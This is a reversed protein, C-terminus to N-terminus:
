GRSSRGRRLLMTGGILAALGVGTVVTLQPDPVPPPVFLVGSEDAVAPQHVYRGQPPLAVRDWNRVLDDLGQRLREGYMPVGHGTAGVDPRLNALMEVSRRATEWDPTYYAPPRRVQRPRTLAALASEQKTTVFADGVILARDAERWLSVHGPSHGPTPLWQWGPMGPVSGDAPLRQVRGGLDIPGRPYLPSLFAMAGGGVAPDPPPYSSRGTLYPMELPHAFVPVDWRDALEPLGGVHDFHGHTLVIATPRSDPGFREAAAAAIEDASFPLGADILVWSHGPAGPRGFFYVNVISQQQCAVDPTVELLSGTQPPTQRAAPASPATATTM